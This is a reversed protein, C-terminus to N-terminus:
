AFREPAIGLQEGRREVEVSHGYGGGAGRGAAPREPHGTGAPARLGTQVRGGQRRRHQRAARVRHKRVQPEQLHLRARRPEQGRAPRDVRSAPPVPGVLWLDRRGGRQVVVHRDQGLADARGPLRGFLRNSARSCLTSTPPMSLCPRHGLDAAGTWDIPAARNRTEPRVMVLASSGPRPSRQDPHRPARAHRQIPSPAPPLAECGTARFGQM